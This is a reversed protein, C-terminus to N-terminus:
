CLLCLSSGDWPEFGHGRRKWDRDTGVKGRALFKVIAGTSRWRDFSSGLETALQRSSQVKKTSSSTGHFLFLDGRGDGAGRRGHARRARRPRLREGGAARRVGARKPRPTESALSTIFKSGFRGRGVLQFYLADCVVECVVEYVHISFHQLVFVSTSVRLFEAKICGLALEGFIPLSQCIKAIDPM